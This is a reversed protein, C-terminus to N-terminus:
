ALEWDIGEEDWSDQTEQLLCLVANQGRGLQFRQVKEPVYSFIAQFAKNTSWRGRIWLKRARNARTELGQKTHKMNDEIILNSKLVLIWTLLRASGIRGGKEGFIGIEM